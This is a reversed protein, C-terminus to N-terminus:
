ERGPAFPFFGARSATETLVQGERMGGAFASYRGGPAAPDLADGIWWSTDFGLIVVVGAGPGERRRIPSGTEERYGYCATVLGRLPAAPERRVLGLPEVSRLTSAASPDDSARPSSGARTPAADLCM